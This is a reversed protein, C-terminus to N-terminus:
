FLSFLDIAFTSALVAVECNKGSCTDAASRFYDWAFVHCDMLRRLQIFPGEPPDYPRSKDQNNDDKAEPKKITKDLDNEDQKDRDQHARYDPQSYGPQM